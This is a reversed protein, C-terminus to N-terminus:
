HRTPRVHIESRFRYAIRAGDDSFAVPGIGGGGDYTAEGSAVVRQSGTDLDVIILSGQARGCYQPEGFFQTALCEAQWLALQRGDASFTAGSVANGSPFDETKVADSPTPLRYVVRATGAGLDNVAIVGADGTQAGAVLVGNSGWRVDSPLVVADLQERLTLTAVDVVDFREIFPASSAASVDACLLADGSPSFTLSGACLPLLTSTGQDVDMMFAAGQTAAGRATGFMDWYAALRGDPSSALAAFGLPVRGVDKGSMADRLTGDTTVYYLASGDAARALRLEPFTPAIDLQRVTGDAVRVAQLTHVVSGQASQAVYVVETGDATWLMNPSVSAADKALLPGRDEVVRRGCGILLCAAILIVLRTRLRSSPM